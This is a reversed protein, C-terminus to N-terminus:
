PQQQARYFRLPFYVANTDTFTFPSTNTELSLWDSLNTAARIVYNSGPMGAITVQFVGTTSYHLTSLIRSPVVVILLALASTVSGGANAVVVSYSGAEAPQVNTLNLTDGTAGALRNTENLLWQYSLPASGSAVVSFMVSGGLTNTQGQPQILISAPGSHAPHLNLMIYGSDSYTKDMAIQYATGATAVVDVGGGTNGAWSSYSGVVSLNALSNGTYVALVNNFFTGVTDVTITGNVPAIWTWWVSKGGAVGGHYPEGSERTAGANSGTVTGPLSTIPLRNAFMDNPPAPAWNVTLSMVASTVSGALNTVVLSYAGAQNTQTNNIGYSPSNAAALSV